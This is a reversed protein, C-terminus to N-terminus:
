RDSDNSQLRLDVDAGAGPDGGHHGRLLHVEDYAGLRSREHTIVLVGRGETHAIGALRDLLEQAGAPDLHTTPEDFILFRADALLLRATAIRQRQGGSIRSGLEGVDTDIGDPLSDLWPGLGVRRLADTVEAASADPRAIAVNERITTAFLYADQPAIRVAQRLEDSDLDRLDVGGLTITGATPDRFRVLLEALTSKGAGSPGVLAVARGPEIRLDVGALVPSAGPEYAFEVGHAELAGAPPLPVPARTERVPAPRATVEELRDAADAVADIGAAAPALPGVAELSAIALLVLAALLVGALEGSAVAPIAVAAMVAAAGAALTASTGAALGSALADRRLFRGLEESAENARREWDAERGALAIEPAGGVIEVIAAGVEARAGAQRRGARRAAARTLLPAAVGASLLVGLIVLSSQPLMVMAAVLGAVGAVAAILPPALARLYLDQMRDADAVFRSLLDAQRTGPLGGPVLPVLRRFFRVRLDTLTRFALDHSVLRELYRLVARAIGFFRVGVIATMLLLIPPQQAARSILYGSTALLAGAAIVAGAGFLVALALRPWRGRTDFAARWLAGRADPGM